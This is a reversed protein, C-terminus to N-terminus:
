LDTEKLDLGKDHESGPPRSGAGNVEKQGLYLLHDEDTPLFDSPRKTGAPLEEAGKMLGDDLTAVEEKPAVSATQRMLDWQIM